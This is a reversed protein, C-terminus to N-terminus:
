FGYVLTVASETDLRKINEPVDSTFKVTYTLKMALSGAVQAQLGAVSKIINAKEGFDASLNETFKATKSIQWGFQAALRWVLEDERGSGTLKSQRAGPGTELDLTVVDNHLLRRGYGASEQVRYDYGSFRDNEYQVTVYVYNHEGFRYESKGDLLYKEATTTNGDASNLAELNAANQWEGHQHKVGLKGRLTQTETNGTTTVMGVEATAETGDEAWASAVSCVSLVVVSLCSKKM